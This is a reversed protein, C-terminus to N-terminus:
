EISPFLFKNCENSPFNHIKFAFTKRFYIYIMAAAPLPPTTLCVVLFLTLFRFGVWSISFTFKRSWKIANSQILQTRLLLYIWLNLSKFRSNLNIPTDFFNCIKLLYRFFVMWSLQVFFTCKEVLRRLNCKKSECQVYENNM